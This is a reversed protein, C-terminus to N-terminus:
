VISLEKKQRNLADGESSSFNLYVFILAFIAFILVTQLEAYTSTNIHGRNIITNGHKLKYLVLYWRSLQEFHSMPVLTEPHHVCQM